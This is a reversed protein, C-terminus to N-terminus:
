MITCGKRKKSNGSSGSSNALGDTSDAERERTQFQRILRVLDYFIQDVNQRFKASCEFYPIQLSKAWGEAEQRSIQRQMELDSKNGVLIMPFFDRDKVRDIHRHLRKIYELSERNTLSFVLLFGDGNRLFQERMSAFEDQGATDTVSVLSLNQLNVPESVQRGIQEYERGCFLKQRVFRCDHSRLRSHLVTTRVTHDAISFAILTSNGPASVASKGVGGSGLVVLRLPQGSRNMQTKQAGNQQQMKVGNNQNQPRVTAIKPMEKALIGRTTTRSEFAFPQPTSGNSHTANKPATKSNESFFVIM